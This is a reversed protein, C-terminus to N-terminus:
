PCPRRNQDAGIALENAIGAGHGTRPRATLISVAAPDSAITQGPLGFAADKGVPTLAQRAQDGPWVPQRMSSPPSPKTESIRDPKDGGAETM